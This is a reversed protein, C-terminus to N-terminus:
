FVGHILNSRERKGTEQGTAKLVLLTLVLKRIDSNEKLINEIKKKIILHNKYIDIYIFTNKKKSKERINTGRKEM